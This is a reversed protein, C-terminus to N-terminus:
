FDQNSAILFRSSYCGASLGLASNEIKRQMCEVFLSLKEIPLWTSSTPAAVSPLEFQEAKKHWSVNMADLFSAFWVMNEISTLSM